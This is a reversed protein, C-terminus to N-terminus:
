LAKHPDSHPQLNACCLDPMWGDVDSQCQSHDGKWLDDISQGSIIRLQKDSNDFPTAWVSSIAFTLASTATIFLCCRALPNGIDESM